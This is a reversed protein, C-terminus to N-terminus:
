IGPEEEKEKIVIDLKGDQLYVQRCLHDWAERFEAQGAKYMEIKGQGLDIQPLIYKWYLDYYPPPLLLNDPDADVNELHLLEHIVKHEIHYMLPVFIGSIYEDLGPRMACLIMFLDPSRMM